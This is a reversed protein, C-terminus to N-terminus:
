LKLSVSSAPTDTSDTTRELPEHYGSTITESMVEETVGIGPIVRGNAKESLDGAEIGSICAYMAAQM